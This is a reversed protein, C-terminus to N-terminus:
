KLKYESEVNLGWSASATANIDDITARCTYTGTDSASLLNFTLTSMNGTTVVGSTIMNDHMLWTIMPQDASGTM